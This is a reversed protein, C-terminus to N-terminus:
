NLRIQELLQIATKNRQREREKESEQIEKETDCRM